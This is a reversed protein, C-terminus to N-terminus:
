LLGSRYGLALRVGRAWFGLVVIENGVITPNLNEKTVTLAKGM